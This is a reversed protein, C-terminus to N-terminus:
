SHAQIAISHLRDYLHKFSSGDESLVLLEEDERDCQEFYEATGSLHAVQACVAHLTLLAPNPLPLEKQSSHNKFHVISSHNYPKYNSAMM